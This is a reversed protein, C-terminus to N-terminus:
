PSFSVEFYTLLILVAVLVHPSKEAEKLSNSFHQVVRVYAQAAIVRTDLGRHRDNKSLTSLLLAARHM